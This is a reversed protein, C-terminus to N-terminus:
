KNLSFAIQNSVLSQDVSNVFSVHCLFIDSFKSKVKKFVFQAESIFFNDKNVSICELFNISNPVFLKTCFGLFDHLLKCSWDKFVGFM